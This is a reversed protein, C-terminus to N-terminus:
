TSSSTFSVVALVVCYHSERREFFGLHRKKNGWQLEARWQHFSRVVGQQHGHCCAACCFKGSPHRATAFRAFLLLDGFFCSFDSTVVVRMSYFLSISLLRAPLSPPSVRRRQQRACFVGYETESKEKRMELTGIVKDLYRSRHPQVGMYGDTNSCAAKHYWSPRTRVKVTTGDTAVGEVEVQEDAPFNCVAADGFLSLAQDIEIALVSCCWFPSLSLQAVLLRRKYPPLSHGPFRSVCLKSQVITAQNNIKGVRLLHSCIVRFACSSM